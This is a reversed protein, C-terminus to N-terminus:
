YTQLSLIAAGNSASPIALGTAGVGNGAGRCEKSASSPQETLM